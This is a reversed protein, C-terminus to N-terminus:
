RRPFTLRIKERELKEHLAPKKSALDAYELPTMIRAEVSRGIKSSVDDLARRVREESGRNLILLEVPSDPSDTGKASDGTLYAARLNTLNELTPILKSLTLIVRMQRAFPNAWRLRYIKKRGRSTETLIGKEVLRKLWKITTAKSLDLEEGIEKSYFEKQPNKCFFELISLPARSGLFELM